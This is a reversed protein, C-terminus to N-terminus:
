ILNQHTRALLKIAHVLETDGAIPRHNHRDTRVLDALVKADGADSKAGSTAHRDRYRDVSRPNIAYLKYDATKLAQVLLGRDIELGVVVQGPEDAHEAVRGHLSAVGQLSHDIRFQALVAGD